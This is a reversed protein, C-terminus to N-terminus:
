EGKDPSCYWRKEKSGSVSINEYKWSSIDIVPYYDM